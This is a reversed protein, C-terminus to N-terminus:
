ATSNQQFQLQIRVDDEDIFQVFEGKRTMIMIEIEDIRDVKLAIKEPHEIQLYNYGSFKDQM